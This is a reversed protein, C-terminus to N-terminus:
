IGIREGDVPVILNGSYFESAEERYLRQRNAPDKDECHVLILNKVRYKEALIAVDRVTHHYKEYPKYIDKESYLCFAGCVLYDCDECDKANKETLSEDGLFVLTKGDPFTMRFGTQMVNDSGVDFFEMRRGDEFLFENDGVPVPVVLSHMKDYHPKLFTLRCITDTAELVDRNGYLNLKGNYSIETTFNVIRRILWILGLLHDTHTHTVFLDHIDSVKLGCRELAQFIGNGGGADVLLLSSGTKVAFCSNYSHKPFASGTGLMILEATM